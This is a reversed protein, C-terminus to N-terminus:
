RLKAVAVTVLKILKPKLQAASGESEYMTVGVIRNGKRAVVFYDGNGDKSFAAEDGIGDLAEAKGQKILDKRWASWGPVSKLLETHVDFGSGLYSCDEEDDSIVKANALEPKALIQAAEARTILSCAQVQAALHTLAGSLLLIAVSLLITGASSRMFGGPFSIRVHVADLSKGGSTRNGHICDLKM